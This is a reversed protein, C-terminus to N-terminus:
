RERKERKRRRMEKERQKRLEAKEKSTLRKGTSQKAKALKAGPNLLGSSPLNRFVGMRERLSMGGIKKMLDAMGDFQKVLENVEHPEVGAGAAIRRRRSTDITRSPNRREEPTMSDIIGQLRRMDGEADMGQMMENMQGMGPIMGMLKNIPGLKKTQRLMRSFDDLTFEGKRLREEQLAMEEQDFKEQAQEFLTRVDGMGLIREAMRDPHFEQL